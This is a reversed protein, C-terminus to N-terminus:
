ICAYAKRMSRYQEDSEFNTVGVHNVLKIPRFTFSVGFRIKSNQNPGEDLVFGGDSLMEDVDACYSSERSCESDLIIMRGAGRVGRPLCPLPAPHPRTKGQWDGDGDGVGMHKGTVKGMGLMSTFNFEMGTGLPNPYEWRM